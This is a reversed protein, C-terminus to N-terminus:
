VGRGLSWAQQKLEALTKEAVPGHGDSTRDVDADHHIVVHGDRTLHVDSELIAAGVAVAREFSPLTNEPADGAAGRHGIPIPTPLDLFPHLM